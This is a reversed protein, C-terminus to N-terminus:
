KKDEAAFDKAQGKLLDLLIFAPGVADTSRAQKLQAADQVYGNRKEKVFQCRLGLAAHMLVLRALCRSLVAIWAQGCAGFGPFQNLQEKADAVTGDALAQDIQGLRNRVRRGATRVSLSDLARRISSPGLTRLVPRILIM